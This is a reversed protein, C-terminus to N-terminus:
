VDCWNENDVEVRYDEYNWFANQQIVEITPIEDGNKLNIIIKFDTIGIVKSVLKNSNDILWQGSQKIQNELMKVYEENIIPM